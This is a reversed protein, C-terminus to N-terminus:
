REVVEFKYHRWGRIKVPIKREFETGFNMLAYLQKGEKTFYQFCNGSSFEIPESAKLVGNKLSKNRKKKAESNDLVRQRWNKAWELSSEGVNDPDLKAIEDLPTLLDLIRKPCDDVGPGAFESMDKYGFNYYAKPARHLMYIMAFTYGKTKDKVALYATRFGVVAIDLLEVNPIDKYKDIFYQKATRTEHFTIWGM